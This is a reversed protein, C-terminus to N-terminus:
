GNSPLGFHDVIRWAVETPPLTTNDITLSARGPVPSLLDRREMYARLSEVSNLKGMSGREPSLSRQELVTNDCTLRVLLVTGGFREVTTFIREVDPKHDPHAYIDTFIIDVNERAAEEIVALRIQRVLKRFPVTGFDFVPSVCNISLHNHFLKYSTMRALENAVTLKGVAPPGYIFVIRM